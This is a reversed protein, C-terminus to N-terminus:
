YTVETTNIVCVWRITTAAAGTVDVKVGGNTTDATVAVVWAAAGADQAIVTPTVAAVLTTSAANAGRKVVGEFKWGSTDGGGTVNAIVTGQFVYASNNPLIVQNTTTAASTNSRLTTTTADTTIVGLLLKASQQHGTTASVPASSAPEVVYGIISRTSGYTGGFVSSNESNATNTNGGVITSNIGSAIHNAGGFVSARLQTARSDAGGVACAALYLAANGQGIALAGASSAVRSGLELSLWGSRAQGNTEIYSIAQKSYVLTISGGPGLTYLTASSGSVGVDSSCIEVIQTATNWAQNIIKIQKGDIPATPLYLRINTTTAGTRVIHLPACDDSLYFSRPASVSAFNNFYDWVQIAPTNETSFGTFM